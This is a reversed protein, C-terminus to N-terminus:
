QADNCISLGVVGVKDEDATVYYMDRRAIEHSLVTVLDQFAIYMWSPFDHLTVQLKLVLQAPREM